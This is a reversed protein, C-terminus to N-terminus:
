QKILKFWGYLLNSTGSLLKSGDWDDFRYTLGGSKVSTLFYFGNGSNTIYWRDDGNSPRDKIVVVARDYKVSEAYSETGPLVQLALVKGSAVHTIVYSWDSQREFRWNSEASGTSTQNYVIQPNNAIPDGGIEM